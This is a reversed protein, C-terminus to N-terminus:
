LVSFSPRYEKDAWIKTFSPIVNMNEATWNAEPDILQRFTKKIIKQEKGQGYDM